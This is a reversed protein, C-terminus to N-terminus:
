MQGQSVKFTLALTICVDVTFIELITVDLAFKVTALLYSTVYPSEIPM